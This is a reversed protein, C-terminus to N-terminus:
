LLDFPTLIGLLRDPAAADIVLVPRGESVSLAEHPSQSPSVVTVPVLKIQDSALAQELRQGLRQRRDNAGSAARLYTAVAYDSILRWTAPGSAAINVPLYTFSNELMAQRIFSIPQWLEACAPSGVMFDTVTGASATMLADELVISLRVAHRTLHRVRAGQHLADNRADKVLAYLVAFPLHFSRYAAPLEDALPSQSAFAALKAQYRGLDGITGLLSCGLREVAFLIAQFGEADHHAHVRAQRLQDRFAIVQEPTM